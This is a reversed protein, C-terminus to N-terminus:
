EGWPIQPKPNEEKAPPPPPSLAGPSGPLSLRKQPLPPVQEQEVKVAEELGLRLAKKRFSALWLRPDRSADFPIIFAKGTTQDLVTIKGGRMNIQLSGNVEPMEIVESVPWFGAPPTPTPKPPPLSSARAQTLADTYIKLMAIGKGRHDLSPDKFIRQLPTDPIAKPEWDSSFSQIWNTEYDKRWKLYTEAAQQYRKGNIVLRSESRIGSGPVSKPARSYSLDLTEPVYRGAQPSVPFERRAIEPIIERLIVLDEDVTGPSVATRYPQIDLVLPAAPSTCQLIGMLGAIHISLVSRHFVILPEYLIRYWSVYLNVDQLFRFM